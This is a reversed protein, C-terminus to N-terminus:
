YGKPQGGPFGRHQLGENKTKLIEGKPQELIYM